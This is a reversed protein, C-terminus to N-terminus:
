KSFHSWGSTLASKDVLVQVAWRNCKCMVPPHIVAEYEGKATEALRSFRM